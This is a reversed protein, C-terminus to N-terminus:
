EPSKYIDMHCVERFGLRRYMGEGAPTAFLVGFRYGLERGARAAAQTMATGYGKGRSQELTSVHWIGAVGGACFLRSGAVPVGDELGLFLQSSGGPELGLATFM